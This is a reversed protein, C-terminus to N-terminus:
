KEGTWTHPEILGIVVNCRRKLKSKGGSGGAVIIIIVRTNPITLM